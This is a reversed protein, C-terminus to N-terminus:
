DPVLSMGVLLYMRYGEHCCRLGLSSVPWIGVLLLLYILWLVNVCLLIVFHPFVHLCHHMRHYPHIECGSCLTLSPQGLYMSRHGTQLESVPLILGHHIYYICM